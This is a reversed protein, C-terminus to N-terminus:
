TQKNRLYEILPHLKRELSFDNREISHKKTQNEISIKYTFYDAANEKTLIQEPLDFFNSENILKQLKSSEEPSISDTDIKLDTVIGELGGSRQFHIKM